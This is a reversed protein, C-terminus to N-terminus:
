HFVIEWIHVHGPEEQHLDWVELHLEKALVTEGFDFTVRPKQV